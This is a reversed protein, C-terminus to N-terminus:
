EPLEDTNRILQHMYRVATALSDVDLRENTGHMMSMGEGRVIVPLFRFVAPSTGSYYKADTGGPVLYPLLLVDNGVVQRLTKGILAFAPTDPSSVASPDASASVDRIQVREDDVVSRVRATVSATTDGPLIRFNVVATANIPLVNDKVGGNFITAATTTRVMTASGPDAVMFRVLLPRFLWLNSMVARTVFPMEPGLFRFMELTAGDLRAPFQNNELRQIAAALIGVNTHDPPMSSHGGEGAVRLELSIFGKEAIGVIAALGDVGPLIDDVVAGGEDLVLAFQDIGREAFLEAIRGAGEPGGVEEDHGFALYVTRDPQFGEALLQEVAELIAVVSVKDDVAGRGWIVDDEIVGGFPPHTWNAETGPIVPVVDQHGMLLIPAKGPDRGRWTYLLSLENVLELELREHVLPYSRAFHEHLGEFAQRDLNARDQHSITPFTLAHAFRAAMASTDVTLHLPEEPAPQLSEASFARVAVVVILLAVVLALGLALKKM